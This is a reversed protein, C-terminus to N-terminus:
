FLSRWLLFMLKVNMLPLPFFMSKVRAPHKNLGTKVRLCESCAAASGSHVLAYHATAFFKFRFEGGGLKSRMVQDFSLCPSCM